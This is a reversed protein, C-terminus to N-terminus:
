GISDDPFTCSAKSHYKDHAMGVGKIYVTNDHQIISSLSVEPPTIYSARAHQM